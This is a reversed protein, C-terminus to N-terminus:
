FKASFNYSFSWKVFFKYCFPWRGHKVTMKKDNRKEVIRKHHAEVLIM